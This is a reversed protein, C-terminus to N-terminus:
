NATIELLSGGNVVFPENITVSEGGAFTLKAGNTVTVNKSQIIWGTVTQNSSVIKDNFVVVDASTNASRTTLEDNNSLENKDVMDSCSTIALSCCLLLASFIIFKEYKM